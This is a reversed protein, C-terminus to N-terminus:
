SFIRIGEDDIEINMWSDNKDIRGLPIEFIIEDKNIILDTIFQNKYYFILRQEDEALEQYLINKDTIDKISYEDVTSDLYYGEDWFFPTISVMNINNRKKSVSVARSCMEAKVEINTNNLSFDEPILILLAATIITATILLIVSLTFWNKRKFIKM